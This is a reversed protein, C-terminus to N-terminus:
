TWDRQPSVPVTKHVHEEKFQRFGRALYNALAKPHDLSCTHVWVRRAGWAWANEIASTLLPGGFGKGIFQPLMGFYAIEIDGGAQQELEFYGAPTGSDYGVWTRLEPRCVYAQWQEYSWRLKDIWSWQWGVSTYLFRNFEPCPVEARVVRFESGTRKARLEDPRLMQLHYITLPVSHVAHNLM